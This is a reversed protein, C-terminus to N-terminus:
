VIVNRFLDVISFFILFISWLVQLIHCNIVRKICKLRKLEKRVYLNIGLISGVDGDGQQEVEYKGSIFLRVGINLLVTAM